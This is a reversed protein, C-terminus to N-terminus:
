WETSELQTFCQLITTKSKVPIKNDVHHNTQSIPAVKNTGIRPKVRIRPVKSQPIKNVDTELIKSTTINDSSSQISRYTKGVIM